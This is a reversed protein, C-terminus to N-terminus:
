LGVIIFKSYFNYFPDRISKVVTKLIFFSICFIQLLDTILIRLFMEGDFIKMGISKGAINILTTLSGKAATPM